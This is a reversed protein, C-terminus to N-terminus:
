RLQYRTESRILLNRTRNRRLTIDKKSGTSPFPGLKILILILIDIIPLMECLSLTHLVHSTTTVYSEELSNEDTRDQDQTYNPLRKRIIITRSVFNTNSKYNNNVLIFVDPLIILVNTNM